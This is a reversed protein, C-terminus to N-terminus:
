ELEQSVFAVYDYKGPLYKIRVKRDIPLDSAVNLRAIHEENDDGVFKVYCNYRSRNDSDYYMEGDVVVSDTEIGNTRMNNERKVAATILVAALAGFVVVASIGIIWGM